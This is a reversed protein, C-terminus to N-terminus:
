PGDPGPAPCSRAGHRPATDHPHSAFGLSIQTTADPPPVVRASNSRACPHPSSVGSSAWQLAWAAAGGGRAGAMQAARPVRTDVRRDRRRDRLAPPCCAAAQVDGPRVRCGSVNPHRPARSDIRPWTQAHFLRPSTVLHDQPDGPQWPIVGTPTIVSPGTPTQVPTPLRLGWPAGAVRLTVLKRQADSKCVPM